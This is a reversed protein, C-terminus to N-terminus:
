AVGAPRLPDLMRREFEGIFGSSDDSTAYNVSHTVNGVTDSESSVVGSSSSGRFCRSAISLVVARVFGPIESFGYMYEVVIVGGWWEGTARLLLGSESWSYDDDEILLDGDETVSTVDVVPFHPLVLFEQRPSPRFTYTEATEEIRSGVEGQVISKALQLAQEAAPADTEAISLRMYASLEDATPWM